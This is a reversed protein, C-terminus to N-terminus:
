RPNKPEFGNEFASRESQLQGSSQRSNKRFEGPTCGNRARFVRNFHSLTPFGTRLSIDNVQISTNKLLSMAAKLRHNNLYELPLQGTHQKFKRRFSTVGMRCKEALLAVDLPRAYNRAIEDLAPYLISVGSAATVGQPTEAGHAGLRVFVAWVLARIYPRDVFTRRVSAAMLLNVLQILEPDEASSIVNRFGSGSFREFNSLGDGTESIWGALLAAPDLNIFKWVSNEPAAEHLIHFERDNIFVADGPSCAYSKGGIQFVGGAGSCCIGIEFVNHIHAFEPPTDFGACTVPLDDPFEIKDYYIHNKQM